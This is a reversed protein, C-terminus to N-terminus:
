NIFVKSKQRKIFNEFQIADSKNEFAKKFCLSWPIGPKTSPSMGNNHQDLRDSPLNSTHGTYYKDTSPSFLIYTYFM